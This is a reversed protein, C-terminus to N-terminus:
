VKWLETVDDDCTKKEQKMWNWIFAKSKSDQLATLKTKAIFQTYLVSNLEDHVCGQFNNPYKKIVDFQQLPKRKRVLLLLLPKELTKKQKKEGM